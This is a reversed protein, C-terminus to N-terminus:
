PKRQLLGGFRVVHWLSLPPGFRKLSPRPCEIETPPKLSPLCKSKRIVRNPQHGPRSSNLSSSVTEARRYVETLDYDPRSLIGEAIDSEFAQLAGRMQVKTIESRGRKLRIATRLEIELIHSLPFPAECSKLVAIAEATGPEQVYSKLLLSTNRM